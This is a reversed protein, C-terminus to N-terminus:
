CSCSGLFEGNTCKESPKVGRVKVSAIFDTSNNLLNTIHAIETFSESLVKIMEFGANKIFNLYESKLIAGSVCGIYAQASEKVEKPLECLLVIDSVLIRGGPKLVRFAEKFVSEKDPSLNIVCNSIIVDVSNDKLPLREIEGLIFEVNKYNGILANKKAKEIMEPTMDVGIVRGSEGVMESALFCDGGAGSGLDLVVEGKQLSAIAFPNGCGLGLNSGDPISALDKDSYGLNKSIDAVSGGGCCSLSSGCGCSGNAKAVKAYGQKVIKKIEEKM